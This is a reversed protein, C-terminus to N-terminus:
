SIIRLAGCNNANIAIKHILSVVAVDVVEADGFADGAVGGVEGRRGSRERVELWSRGCM